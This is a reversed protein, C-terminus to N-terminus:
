KYKKIMHTCSPHIACVFCLVSIDKANKLLRYSKCVIEFEDQTLNCYFPVWSIKSCPLGTVDFMKTQLEKTAQKAPTDESSKTMPEPPRGTEVISPPDIMEVETMERARPLIKEPNTSDTTIVLAPSEIIPETRMIGTPM